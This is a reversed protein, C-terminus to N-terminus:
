SESCRRKFLIRCCVNFRLRLDLDIMDNIFNDVDFKWRKKFERRWRKAVRGNM